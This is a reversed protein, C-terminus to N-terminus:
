KSKSVVKSTSNNIRLLYNGPPLKELSVNATKTHSYTYSAVKRGNVDIVQINSIDDKESTVSVMNDTPNPFIAIGGLKGVPPLAEKKAGGDCKVDATLYAQCCPGKNTDTFNTDVIYIIVSVTASGGPPM